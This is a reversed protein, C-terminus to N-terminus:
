LCLPRRVDDNGIIAQAVPFGAEVHDLTDTAYETRWDGGEQDAAVGSRVPQAFRSRASIIQQM